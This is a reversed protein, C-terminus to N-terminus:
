RQAKAPSPLDALFFETLKRVEDDGFPIKVVCDDPLEAFQAYNSVAVPKGADFARILTGSTEGASPYRLNVFRDAVAYYAPFDDDAVYGTTVIGESQLASVDINPAPEGVILLALR